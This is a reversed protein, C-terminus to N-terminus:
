QEKNPGAKGGPSKRHKQAGAEAAEFELALNQWWVPRAALDWPAVGLYKAARVLLYEDTPEGM